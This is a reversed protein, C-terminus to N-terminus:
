ALSTQRDPPNALRTIATLGTVISALAAAAQLWLGEISGLQLLSLAIVYGAYGAPLGYACALTLRMLPSRSATLLLPGTVVAILGILAGGAISSFSHATLDYLGTGVAIAILLALAHIAFRYLLACFAGIGLATVALSIIM